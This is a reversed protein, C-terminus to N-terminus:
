NCHFMVEKSWWKCIEWTDCTDNIESATFLDPAIAKQVGSIDFALLVGELSSCHSLLFLCDATKQCSISLGCKKLRAVFGLPIIRLNLSHQVKSFAISRLTFIYLHFSSIRSAGVNSVFDPDSILCM